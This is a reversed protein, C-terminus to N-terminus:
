SVNKLPLHHCRDRTVLSLTRLGIMLWQAIEKQSLSLLRLEKVQRFQEQKDLQQALHKRKLDGDPPGLFPTFM